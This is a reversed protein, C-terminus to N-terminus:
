LRNRDTIFFFFSNYFRTTIVIITQAFHVKVVLVRNLRRGRDSKSILYKKIQVLNGVSLSNYLNNVSSNTCIM